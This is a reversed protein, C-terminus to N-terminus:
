MFSHRTLAYFLITIEKINHSHCCQVARTTSDLNYDTQLHWQKMEKTIICVTFLPTRHASKEQLRTGTHRVKLLICVTIGSIFGSNNKKTFLNAKPIEKFLLAEEADIKKFHEFWLFENQVCYKQTDLNCLILFV